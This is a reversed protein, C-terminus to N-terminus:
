LLLYAHQRLERELADLREAEEEPAATELATVLAEVRVRDSDAILPIIREKAKRLATEVAPSRGPSPADTSGNGSGSMLQDVRRRMDPLQTRDEAAGFTLEEDMM